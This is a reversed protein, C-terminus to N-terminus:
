RLYREVDRRLRIKWADARGGLVNWSRFSTVCFATPDRFPFDSPAHHLRTAKMSRFPTFCQHFLVIMHEPSIEYWEMILLVAM